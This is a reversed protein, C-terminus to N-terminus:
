PCEVDPQEVDLLDAPNLVGVAKLRDVTAELQEVSGFERTGLPRGVCFGSLEGLSDVKWIDQSNVDFEDPCYPANKTFGLYESQRRENKKVLRGVLYTDVESAEHSEGVGFRDSIATFQFDGSDSIEVRSRELMRPGDTDGLLSEPGAGAGRLDIQLEGEVSTFQAYTEFENIAGSEDPRRRFNRYLSMSSTIPGIGDAGADEVNYSSVRPWIAVSAVQDAVCVTATVQNNSSDLDIVASLQSKHGKGKFRVEWGSESSVPVEGDASLSKLVKNVLRHTRRKDQLVHRIRRVSGLFLKSDRDPFDLLSFALDSKSDRLESATADDKDSLSLLNLAASDDVGSEPVEASVEPLFFDALDVEVNNTDTPKKPNGVLTGCSICFLLIISYIPLSFKLRNLNTKNATMKADKM